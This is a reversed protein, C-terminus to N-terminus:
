VTQSTIAMMTLKGPEKPQLEISSWTSQGLMWLSTPMSSHPRNSHFRFGQNATSYDQMPSTQICLDKAPLKVGCRTQENRINVEYILFTSNGPNLYRHAIASKNYIHESAALGPYLHFAQTEAYPVVLQPNIPNFGWDVRTQSEVQSYFVRGLYVYMQRGIPAGIPLRPGIATLDGYKENSFMQVIKFDLAHQSIINGNPLGVFYIRDKMQHKEPAQQTQVLVYVDIKSFIASVGSSFGLIDDSHKQLSVDKLSFMLRPYQKITSNVYIICLKYQWEANTMIRGTAAPTFLGVLRSSDIDYHIGYILGSPIEM